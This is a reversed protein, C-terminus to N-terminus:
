RRQCSPCFVTQRQGLVVGKLKSQCVLCPLGARGYVSLEQSFYGPEGNSGVFDRLTTGGLSIADLLVQRVANVIREIRLKGISGAPTTPRVRAQFLAENAYINGVGVVCHSNMLVNKIAASKKRTVGYLYGVNFGTDLPEPGLSSLLRHANPDESTWHVSGFRRPDNFRLIRDNEFQWDVPDPTRLPEVSSVVRLSGSM